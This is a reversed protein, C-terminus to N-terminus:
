MELAVAKLNAECPAFTIIASIEGSFTFETTASIPPTLANGATISTHSSFDTLEAIESAKVRHPFNFTVTM